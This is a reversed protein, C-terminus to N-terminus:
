DAWKLLDEIAKWLDPFYRKLKDRGEESMELFENHLDGVLRHGINVTDNLSLREKQALTLQGSVENLMGAQQHLHREALILDAFRQESVAIM